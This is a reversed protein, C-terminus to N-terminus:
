AFLWHCDELNGTFTFDELPMWEICNNDADFIECNKAVRATSVAIETGLQCISLLRKLIIITNKDRSLVYMTYDRTHQRKQMTTYTKCNSLVVFLSERCYMFRHVYKSHTLWATLSIETTLRRALVLDKIVNLLELLLLFANSQHSNYM